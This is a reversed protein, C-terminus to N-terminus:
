CPIVRLDKVIEFGIKMDFLKALNSFLYIHMVHQKSKPLMQHIGKMRLLLGLFGPELGRCKLLKFNGFSFDDFSYTEQMNKLM